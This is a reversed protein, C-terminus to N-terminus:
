AMLMAVAIGPLASSGLSGMLLRLQEIRIREEYSISHNAPM